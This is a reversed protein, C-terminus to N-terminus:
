TEDDEDPPSGYHQMLQVQIMAHKAEVLEVGQGLLYSTINGAFVYLLALRWKVLQPVNDYHFAIWLGVAVWTATCYHCRLMSEFFGIRTLWQRPKNLINSDTLLFTLGFVALLWLVLSPTM